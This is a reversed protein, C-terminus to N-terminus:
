LNFKRENEVKDTEMNIVSLSNSARNAVYLADYTVPKTDTNNIEDNKTCSSLIVASLATCVIISKIKKLRVKQKQFKYDIERKYVPL